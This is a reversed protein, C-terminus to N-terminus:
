SVELHVVFPKGKPPPKKQPNSKQGQPAGPAPPPSGAAPAPNPNNPDSPDADSAVIQETFIEKLAAADVVHANIVAEVNGVRGTSIIEFSTLPSYLIPIGKSHIEAINSFGLEDLLGDFSSEILSAGAAQIEARREMFRATTEEDFQPDIAMLVDKEATNVNIGFTGHATVLKKLHNFILDDMKDVLMLESMSMFSGNRPYGTQDEYSYDNKESGGGNRSDDDPDIWDAINNLVIKISDLSHEKSLDRDQELAQEFSKELSNLTRESITKIPSGLSNLDLKQGSDQILHDFSLNSILSEELVGESDDKAILGADEPIPLPWPLPFQWIMALKQDVAAQQEKPLSSTAAKATQYAKIRLLAMEFGAQAAYHAKLKKIHRSALTSETLTENSLQTVVFSVITFFFLAMMLAAGREKKRTIPFETKSNLM